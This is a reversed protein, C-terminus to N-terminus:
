LPRGLFGSDQISSTRMRGDPTILVPDRNGEFADEITVVSAGSESTVGGSPADSVELTDLVEGSRLDVTSLRHSFDGSRTGTEEAVVVYGGSSGLAIPTDAYGGFQEAGAAASAPPRNVVSVVLQPFDFGQSGLPTRDGSPERVELGGDTVELLADGAVAGDVLPQGDYHENDALIPKWRGQDEQDMPETSTTDVPITLYEDEGHVMIRDHEPDALYDRALFDYRDDNTDLGPIEGPAAVISGDAMDLVTLGRADAVYAYREGAAITRPPYVHDSSLEISWVHQGTAVDIATVRQVESRNLAIQAMGQPGMWQYSVIAVDRGDRQGIAVSPSAETSVFPVMLMWTGTFFLVVYTILQRVVTPLTSDSEQKVRAPLFVSAFGLFVVVLGSILAIFWFNYFPLTSQSRITAVIWLALLVALGALLLLRTTRREARRRTLSAYDHKGTM